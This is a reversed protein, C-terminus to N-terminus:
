EARGISIDKDVQGEGEPLPVPLPHSRSLLKEFNRETESFGLRVLLPSFDHQTKVHIIMRDVGIRRLDEEVFEILKMGVRGRRYEPKLFLIDNMAVICDRYHLHPMVFSIYYGILTGADRATVIHVMGAKDLAEYKGYDPNLPFRDQYLAIERWHAELLPKIEELVDSVREVSFCVKDTKQRRDETKQETRQGRDETKQKETM